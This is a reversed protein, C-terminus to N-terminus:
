IPRQVMWARIRNLTLPHKIRAWESAINRKRDIFGIQDRKTVAERIQLDTIAEELTKRRSFAYRTTADEGNQEDIVLTLRGDNSIRSFEIPVVTGNKTWEGELPLDRSDWILSGWGIILITM